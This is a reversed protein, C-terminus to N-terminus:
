ENEKMEKYLNIVYEIEQFTKLQVEVLSGKKRKPLWIAYIKKVDYDQKAYYYFSMQWSLYEMDLEYTTKIDLMSKIGMVIAIMDYTGCYYLEENYVQEEQNIPIIFHKEKIAEWEKFKKIQLDDLGYPFDFEIAKHVEKGFKAARELTELDVGKYKDKFITAALITSVNPILVGDLYYIHEEENFVLRSM